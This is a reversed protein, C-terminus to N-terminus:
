PLPSTGKFPITLGQGWNKRQKRAAMLHAGKSWGPCGMLGWRLNMLVHSCLEKIVSCGYVTRRFQRDLTRKIVTFSMSPYLNWNILLCFERLCSCKRCIVSSQHQSLIGQFLNVDLCNLTKNIRSKQYLSYFFFAYLWQFWSIAKM